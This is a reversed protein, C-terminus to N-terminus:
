CRVAQAIRQSTVGASAQGPGPAGAPRHGVPRPGARHRSGVDSDNAEASGRAEPGALSQSESVPMSSTSAVQHGASSSLSKLSLNIWELQDATLPM